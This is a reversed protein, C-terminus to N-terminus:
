LWCCRDFAAGEQSSRPRRKFFCSTSNVVNQSHCLLRSGGRCRRTMKRATIGYGCKGNRCLRLRSDLYTACVPRARQPYASCSLSLCSPSVYGKSLSAQRLEAYTWQCHNGHSRAGARHRTRPISADGPSILRCEQRRPMPRGGLICGTNASPPVRNASAM